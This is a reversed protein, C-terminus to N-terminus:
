FISPEDITPPRPPVLFFVERTDLVSGSKLEIVDVAAKFVQPERASKVSRNEKAIIDFCVPTGSRVGDFTEDHGDGDRDSTHLGGVCVVTKDRPDAIGGKKNADIREIFDTADVGDDDLDRANTTLDLAIEDALTTIANVVEPGAAGGSLETLNASAFFLPNGAADVSGTAEAIEVWSESGGKTTTPGMVVLKAGIANLADSVMQATVKVTCNDAQTIPEDGIMVLIPLANDRVCGYGIRDPGCAPPAPGVAPWLSVDGTAFLWMAQLYPESSGGNATVTAIATAVAMADDTTGALHHIGVDGASDLKEPCQDFEGAGVQLDPIAAQIGPVITGALNTRVGDIAPGMSNSADMLFYVDAVKIEPQFVLTGEPPEPEEKFPVRFFFNGEQAPNSKKDTPDTGAAIETLDDVKDGDSDAKLPDTKRALEDADPLGDDDSDLDRYDPEGDEDTDRPLTKPDADGAEDADPIGDGDSDDDMFDPTGDEDTDRTRTEFQDSIGDGDADLEGAPVSPETGGAGGTGATTDGTGGSAGAEGGTGSGSGSGDRGGGSDSGCAPVLCVLALLWAVRVRNSRCPQLTM